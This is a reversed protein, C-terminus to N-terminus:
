AAHTFFYKGLTTISGARQAGTIARYGREVPSGHIRRRSLCEPGVDRPHGDIVHSTM